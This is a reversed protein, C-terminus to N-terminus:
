ENPNIQNRGWYHTVIQRVDGPAPAIVPIILKWKSSTRNDFVNVMDHSGNMNIPLVDTGMGLWPMIAGSDLTEISSLDNMTGKYISMEGDNVDINMDQAGDIFTQSVTTSGNEIAWVHIREIYRSRPLDIELDGTSTVATSSIWEKLEDRPPRAPNQEKILIVSLRGGTITVPRDGVSCLSAFDPAIDIELTIDEYNKPSLLTQDSMFTNKDEFYLPTFLRFYATDGVALPRGEDQLIDAFFFSPEMLVKNWHAAYGPIDKLLNSGGLRFRIAKILRQICLNGTVYDAAGGANVNITGSISIYLKRILYSKPFNVFQLTQGFASEDFAQTVWPKILKM